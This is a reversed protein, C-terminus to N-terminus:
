FAPAVYDNVVVVVAFVCSTFTGSTVVRLYRRVTQTATTAIRQATPGTAATFAAGTLDAFTSNDASDQLKVTCSTGTLSFVELYAQAGFATSALTSGRDISAGNTATTDTRKGPTAQVGWELGFGNAVTSINFTMEGSSSRKGPYDLQKGVMVAAPSGLGQGRLYTIILDTAPLPAFRLHAANAAPGPNFFADFDIGGDRMGGIREHASKDIGTVDITAVSGSIKSLAGIDGSVDYGHVFLADGLGSQKV